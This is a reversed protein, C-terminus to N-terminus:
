GNFLTAIFESRIISVSVYHSRSFICKARRRWARGIVLCAAACRWDIVSACRVAVVIFPATLQWFTESLPPHGLLRIYLRQSGSLYSRKRERVTSRSRANNEGVTDVSRVWGVAISRGGNGFALPGARMSLLSRQGDLVSLPPPRLSRIV